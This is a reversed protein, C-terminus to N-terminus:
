VSLTAWIRSLIVLWLVAAGVVVAVGVWRPQAQRNRNERKIQEQHGM